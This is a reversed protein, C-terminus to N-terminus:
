FVLDFWILSQKFCASVIEIWANALNNTLRMASGSHAGLFPQTLALLSLSCARLIISVPLKPLYSTPRERKTHTHKVMKRSQFEHKHM